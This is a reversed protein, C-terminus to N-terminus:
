VNVAEREVRRAEVRVKAEELADAVIPFDANIPIAINFVAAVRVADIGKDGLIVAAHIAEAAPIKGHDRLFTATATKNVLIM